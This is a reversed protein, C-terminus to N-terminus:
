KKYITNRSILKDGREYFFVTLERIKGMPDVSVVYVRSAGDADPYLYVNPAVKHAVITQENSIRATGEFVCRTTVTLLGRDNDPKWETITFQTNNGHPSTRVTPSISEVVVIGKEDDCYPSHPQRSFGQNVGCSVPPETILPVPVPGSSEAEPAAWALSASLFPLLWRANM